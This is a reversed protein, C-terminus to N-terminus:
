QGSSRKAKELRLSLYPSAGVLAAGRSQLALLVGLGTADVSILDTLDLRLSTGEATCVRMLEASPESELRGSLRLTRRGHSEVFDARFQVSGHRAFSRGGLPWM